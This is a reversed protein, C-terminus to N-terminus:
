KKMPALDRERSCEKSTQLCDTTVPSWIQFIPHTCFCNLTSNVYNQLQQLHCLTNDQHFLVKEKKMQPWKKAIEDKLHALLAIYYKGNITKRKELYDIFLIGLADWFISALVKGASIQTKPQKPCSEGAATWEASQQNSEPTFHHIWTEDVANISYSM